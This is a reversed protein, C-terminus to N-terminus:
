LRDLLDIEDSWVGVVLYPHSFDGAARWRLLSEGHAEFVESCVEAFRTLGARAGQTTECFPTVRGRGGDPTPLTMVVGHPTHAFAAREMFREELPIM